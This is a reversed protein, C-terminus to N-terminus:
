SIRGSRRLEGGPEAAELWAGLRRGPSGCTLRAAICLLTFVVFDSAVSHRISVNTNRFSWAGVSSNRLSAVSIFFFEDSEGPDSGKELRGPPPPTHGMQGRWDYPSLLHPEKGHAHHEEV